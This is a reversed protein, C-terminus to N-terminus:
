QEAPRLLILVDGQNVSDGEKFRIDVVVGSATANVENEMKMAEIVMVPQGEEITDGERIHVKVVQGPLPAVISRNDGLTKPRFLPPEKGSTGTESAPIVPGRSSPREEPQPKIDAVREIGLDSLGVQYKKGNVRVVAETSSFEDIIVSYTKGNIELKIEKEIM